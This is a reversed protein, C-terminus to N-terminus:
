LHPCDPCNVFDQHEHYQEYFAARADADFAEKYGVKGLRFDGEIIPVRGSHIAKHVTTEAIGHARVFSRWAVLDDSLWIVEQSAASHHTAPPTHLAPGPQWIAVPYEHEPAFWSGLLSMDSYLVLTKRDSAYSVRQLVMIPEDRLLQLAEQEELSAARASYRDKAWAITLGHVEQIRKVVDTEPDRKMEDLIEGAVLELPYYSSWLCIPQRNIFSIRSRKAFQRYPEIHFTAPLQEADLSVITIGRTLTDIQLGLSRVHNTWNPFIGPITIPPTSRETRGEKLAMVERENFWPRKFGEFFYPKLQKRVNAYFRKRPTDLVEMTEETDLYTENQIQKRM